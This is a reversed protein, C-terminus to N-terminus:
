VTRDNDPGGDAELALEYVRIPDDTPEVPSEFFDIAEDAPTKPGNPQSTADAASTTSISM